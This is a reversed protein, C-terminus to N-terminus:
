QVHRESQSTNYYQHKCTRSPIFVKYLKRLKQLKTYGHIFKGEKSTIDYRKNEKREGGLKQTLKVHM